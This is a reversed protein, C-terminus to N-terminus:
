STLRCGEGTPSKFNLFRAGPKSNSEIHPQQHTEIALSLPVAMLCLRSVNSDDKNDVSVETLTM